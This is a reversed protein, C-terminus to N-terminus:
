ARRGGADLAGRNQAVRRNQDHRPGHRLLRPVDSRPDDDTRPPHPSRGGTRPRKRHLRDEGARLGHAVAPDTLQLDGTAAEAFIRHSRRTARWRPGAHGATLMLAPEVLAGYLAERSAGMGEFSSGTDM